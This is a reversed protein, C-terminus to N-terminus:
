ALKKQNRSITGTKKDKQLQLKEKKLRALQWMFLRAPSRISRPTQDRVFLRAKELLDQPTNKALRLYLSRHPWDSLEEALRLGYAQFNKTVYKRRKELRGLDFLTGIPEPKKTTLPLLTTPGIFFM